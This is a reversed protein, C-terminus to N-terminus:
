YGGLIQSCENVHKRQERNLQMLAPVEATHEAAGASQGGIGMPREAPMLRVRFGHPDNAGGSKRGSEACIEFAKIDYWM